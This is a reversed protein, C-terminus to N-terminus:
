RSLVFVFHRKLIRKPFCIYTKYLMKNYKYRVTGYYVLYNLHPAYHAKATPSQGVTLQVAWQVALTAVFPAKHEKYLIKIKNVLSKDNKVTALLQMANILSQFKTKLM